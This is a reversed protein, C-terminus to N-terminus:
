AGPKRIWSRCWGNAAVLKRPFLSCPRWAEGAKGQILQCNSCLQGPKYMPFKKADVKRADHVYALARATPDSEELRPWSAPSAAPAGMPAAAPAGMPAAPAGMPPAAAGAPAATQARATGAAVAVGLAAPLAGLVLARRSLNPDKTSNSM